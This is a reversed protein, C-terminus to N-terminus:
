LTSFELFLEKVKPPSELLCESSSMHYQIHILQLTLCEAIQSDVNSVILVDVAFQIPINKLPNEQFPNSTYVPIM